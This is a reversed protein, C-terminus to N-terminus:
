HQQYHKPESLEEEQVPDPGEATTEEETNGNEEKGQFYCILGLAIALFIHIFFRWASDFAFPTLGLFFRLADRFPIDTHMFAIMVMVLDCIFIAISAWFLIRTGRRFGRSRFLRRFFGATKRIM